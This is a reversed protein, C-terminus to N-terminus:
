DEEAALGTADDLRPPPELELPAQREQRLPLVLPAPELQGHPGLDQEL